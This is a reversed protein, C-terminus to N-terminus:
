RIPEDKLNIEGKQAALQIFQSFAMKKFNGWFVGFEALNKGIEMELDSSETQHWKDINLRLEVLCKICALATYDIKPIDKNSFYNMLFRDMNGIAWNLLVVPFQTKAFQEVQSHYLEVFRLPYGTQKEEPIDPDYRKRYARVILDSNIVWEPKMGASSELHSLAADITDLFNQRARDVKYCQESALPFNVACFYNESNELNNRSAESIMGNAAFENRIINVVRTYRRCAFVKEEIRVFDNWRNEENFLRVNAYFLDKLVLNGRFLGSTCKSVNFRRESGYLEHYLYDETKTLYFKGLADRQTESARLFNPDVAGHFFNDSSLGNTQPSFRALSM